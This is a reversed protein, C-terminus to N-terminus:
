VLWIRAVSEYCDWQWQLVCSTKKECVPEKRTM